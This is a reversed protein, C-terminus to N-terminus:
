RDGPEAARQEAPEAPRGDGQEAATGDWWHECHTRDGRKLCPTEEPEANGCSCCVGDTSRM